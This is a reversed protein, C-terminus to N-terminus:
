ILNYGDFVGSNDPKKVLMALNKAFSRKVFFTAHKEAHLFDQLSKQVSFFAIHHKVNRKQTFIVGM